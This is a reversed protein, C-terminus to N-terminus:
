LRIYDKGSSIGSLIEMLQIWKFDYSGIKKISEKFLNMGAQLIWLM